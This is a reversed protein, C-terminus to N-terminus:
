FRFQRVLTSYAPELYEWSGSRGQVSRSTPWFREPCHKEQGYCATSINSTLITPRHPQHGSEEPPIKELLGIGAGLADCVSM